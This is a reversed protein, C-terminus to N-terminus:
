FYDYKIEVAVQISNRGVIVITIRIENTWPFDYKKNSNENNTSM